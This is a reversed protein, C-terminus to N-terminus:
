KKLRIKYSTKWTAIKHPDNDPYADPWILELTGSARERWVFLQDVQKANIEIQEKANISRIAFTDKDLPYVKQAGRKGDFYPKGDAFKAGPRVFSIHFTNKDSVKGVSVESVPANPNSKKQMVFNNVTRLRFPRYGGQPVIEIYADIEPKNRALTYERRLVLGTYPAETITYSFRVKISNATIAADELTINKGSLYLVGKDMFVDRGILSGVVKGKHKWVAEGSNKLALELSHVPTSIICSEPTVAYRMGNKSKSSVKKRYAEIAKQEDKDYDPIDGAAAKKEPSFEIVMCTLPALKLAVKGNKVPLVKGNELNTASGQACALKAFITERISNNVVLNWSKGNDGKRELVYINDEANFGPYVKRSNKVLKGQQWHPGTKALLNMYRRFERVQEGDSVFLGQAIAPTDDKGAFFFATFLQLARHIGPDPRGWGNSVLVSKPSKLELAERELSRFFDLNRSYNMTNFFDVFDDYLSSRIGYTEEYELENKPAFPMSCFGFKAKPNSKKLGEVVTKVSAARQRCRFDVWARRHNKIIDNGTITEPLNNEKAFAKICDKCFCSITVPGKTYPEYDWTVRLAEAIRRAHQPKDFIAKFFDSGAAVMASDCYIPVPAGTPDVAQRLNVMQPKWDYHVMTRVIEVEKVHHWGSNKWYNELAIALTNQPDKTDIRSVPFDQSSSYRQKAPLATGKYEAIQQVPVTFSIKKKGCEFTMSIDFKDAVTKDATFILCNSWTLWDFSRDVIYKGDKLPVKICTQKARKWIYLESKVGAPAKVTVAVTQRPMTGSNLRLFGVGNKELNYPTGLPFGTFNHPFPNDPMVATKSVTQNRPPEITKEGNYFTLKPNRFYIARDEGARRSRNYVVMGISLTKANALSGTPIPFAIKIWEKQPGSYNKLLPRSDVLRKRNADTVTYHIQASHTLLDSKMEVSFYYSPGPEITISAGAYAAFIPTKGSIRFVGDRTTYAAIGNKGRYGNWKDPLHGDKSAFGPNPLLNAGACFVSSCLATVLFALIYKIKM